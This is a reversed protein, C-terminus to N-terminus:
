ATKKTTDRDSDTGSNASGAKDNNEEIGLLYTKRYPLNNVGNTNGTLLLKTSQIHPLIETKWDPHSRMANLHDEPITGISIMYNEVRNKFEEKWEERQAAETAEHLPLHAYKRQPALETMLTSITQLEKEAGAISLELLGETSEFEYLDAQYRLKDSALMKDLQKAQEELDLRKAQRRMLNAKTHALKNAIDIHQEYLINWAGDPTHCSGAIFHKLQFDSNNRHPASHM